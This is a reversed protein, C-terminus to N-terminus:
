SSVEKFIDYGNIRNYLYHNRIIIKKLFFLSSTSLCQSIKQWTDLFDCNAVGMKLESWSLKSKGFSGYVVVAVESFRQWQQFNSRKRSQVSSSIRDVRTVMTYAGVKYFDFPHDLTCSEHCRKLPNFTSYYGAWKLPSFFFSFFSLFSTEWRSGEGEDRLPLRFGLWDLLKWIYSSDVGKWSNENSSFGWQVTKEKIEEKGAESSGWRTALNM